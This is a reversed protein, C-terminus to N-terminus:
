ILEDQEMIERLMKNYKEQEQWEEDTLPRVRKIMEIRNRAELLTEILREKDANM